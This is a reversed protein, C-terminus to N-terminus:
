NILDILFLLLLKFVIVLFILLFNISQCLLFVILFYNYRESTFIINKIFFHKLSQCINFYLFLNVFFIQM